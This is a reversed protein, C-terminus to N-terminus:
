RGTTSHHWPESGLNILGYKSPQGKPAGGTRVIFRYCDNDRSRILTGNCTLDVALGFEHQSRGPPATPPSCKRRPTGIGTCHAAELEAQRKSSRFGSGGITLGEAKADAVLRAINPAIRADVVISPAGDVSCVRIQERGPTVEIRGEGTSCPVSTDGGTVEAGTLGANDPVCPDSGLQAHATESVGEVHAQAIGARAAREHRLYAGSTYAEWPQWGDRGADVSAQWLDFAMAANAAANYRDGGHKAILGQHLSSIQWLGQHTRGDKLQNGARPNGSSEQLGVMVATLLTNPDSGWPTTAAARALLVAGEGQLVPYSTAGENPDVNAPGGAPPAYNAAGGGGVAPAPATCSQTPTLQGAAAAILLVQQQTRHAAQVPASCGALVVAAVLAAAAPGWRRERVM